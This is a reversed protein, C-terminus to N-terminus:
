TSLALAANILGLHSYAQPYNGLACRQDPDWQEALLGLTGIRSIMQEFLELAHSRDGNMVLAEILWTRCIIFEGERGRLSDDFHYRYVGGSHALQEMIFRLTGQSRPHDPAHFRSLLIWLLAADAQPLDYASVYSNHGHHFGRLEIDKRILDALEHWEPREHGLYLSVEACCVVTYWCMLKSHVYHRAAGRMEWIGSDPDAWRAGVLAVLHEALQVHETTLTAGNQSLVLMLEAIPALTDLQLQHAALNGIRVPRSGRYGLAEPVEAEGMVVRGTVTYLPALFAEGEADFVIGLLWDLLRMAPGQAGLRVLASAALASDRPWCFRYDWNRIGGLTEPLSTTAAAAIAGTPGYCLGRLVLASRAVLQRALSPLRLTAFWGEWAQMTGNLMEQESPFQANTSATGILLRLSADKGEMKRESRAVDHPGERSIEWDWGTGLLVVPIQGCDVRLGQEVRSIRTPFRGFNFKPAFEARITGIGEILRVLDSRGARQYARGGSLDLFDTVTVGRFSTKAVLSNDVYTQSPKGEASVSFHGASPGGVLYGFLPSGDIRPACLWSVRGTSDVLATTRQDSLFIHGDIAESVATQVWANRSEALRALLQVAEPMSSVRFRARTEGPGVKVGVDSPGLVAFAAEDTVDDGIYFTITPQIHERLRDLADGKSTHVVSFEIVKNGNLLLGFGLKALETRLSQIIMDPSPDIGRYHFVVSHPKVEVRAGPCKCVATGVIKKAIELQERQKRDLQCATDLDFEHGHSGVLRVRDLAPLRSSLDSLARGSIVAIFTNPLESLKRLAVQAVPDIQSDEPRETFSSLTGDFDTAVLLRSHATLDALMQDIPSSPSPLQNSM